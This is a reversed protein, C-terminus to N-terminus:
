DAAQRRAGTGGRQVREFDDAVEERRGGGEVNEIAVYNVAAITFWARSAGACARNICICSNCKMYHCDDISSRVHSV